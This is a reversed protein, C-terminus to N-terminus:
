SRSAVRLPPPPAAALPKSARRARAFTAEGRPRGAQPNATDYIIEGTMTGGYQPVGFDGIAASYVGRLDAPATIVLQETQVIFDASAALVFQLVAAAVLVLVRMM